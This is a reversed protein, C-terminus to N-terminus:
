LQWPVSEGSRRKGVAKDLFLAHGLCLKEGIAPIQSGGESVLQATLKLISGSVMDFFLKLCELESSVPEMDGLDTVPLSDSVPEVDETPVIVAVFRVLCEIVM